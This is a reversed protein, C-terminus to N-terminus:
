GILQSCKEIEGARAIHQLAREITDQTLRGAVVIMHPSGFHIRIQTGDIWDGCATLAAPTMFFCARQTGDRMHLLVEIASSDQTDLDDCLTFTMFM